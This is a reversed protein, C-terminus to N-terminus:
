DVDGVEKILYMTFGYIVVTVIGFILSGIGLAKALESKGGLWILGSLVLYAGYMVNLLSVWKMIFQAWTQQALMGVGLLLDIAGFIGSITGFPGVSGVWGLGAAIGYIGRLTILISVIIYCIEQWSMRNDYGGRMQTGPPRAVNDLKSNCFQCHQSWAPLTAGCKPCKIMQIQTSM